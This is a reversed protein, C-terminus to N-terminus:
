HLPPESVRSAALRRTLAIQTGRPLIATTMVSIAVVAGAVSWLTFTAGPIVLGLLVCGTGCCTCGRQVVVVTKEDKKAV